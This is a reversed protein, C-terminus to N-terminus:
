DENKNNIIDNLVDLRTKNYKKCLCSIIEEINTLISIRENELLKFNYNLAVDLLKLYAEQMDSLVDISTKYDFININNMMKTM